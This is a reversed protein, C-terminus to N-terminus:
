KGIMRARVRNYIAEPITLVQRRHARDTTVSGDHIVGPEDRFKRIVWDTSKHFKAAVEKVTLDPAGLRPTSGEPIHYRTNVPHALNETLRAAIKEAGRRTRIKDYVTTLNRDRWLGGLRRVVYGSQGNVTAVLFRSKGVYHELM